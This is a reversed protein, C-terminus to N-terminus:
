PEDSMAEYRSLLEAAFDSASGWYVRVDMNGFYDNMYTLSDEVSPTDPNDDDDPKSPPLQVAISDRRMGRERSTVFSRFLVRFNWDQLSYGVFLLTTNSMAKQIQDSILTPDASIQVLFDLYDDETLVLSNMDQYHGHLHYVLPKEAKPGTGNASPADRYKERLYKNWQCLEYTPEKGARRLAQLMFDDYNTTIFVPLPLRAILAHPENTAEFDPTKLPTFWTDILEEKPFMADHKVALYQAVSPLNSTDGLPYKYDKSWTRAIHSGLPLTSASAGAGLFPTVSGKRIRKLLTRWYHDDLTNPM